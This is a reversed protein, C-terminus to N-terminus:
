RIYQKSLDVASILATQTYYVGHHTQYKHIVGELIGVTDDRAPKAVQIAQFRRKLAGDEEIYKRYEEVTTAGICKM